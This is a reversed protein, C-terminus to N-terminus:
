HLDGARFAVTVATPGLGGLDQQNLLVRVGQPNGFRVTLDRAAQWQAQSGAELTREYVLRGDAIVRVWCRGVATVSLRVGSSAPQRTFIILDVPKGNGPVQLPGPGRSAPAPGPPVGAPAGAPTLAVSGPTAAATAEDQPSPPQAPQVPSPAGQRGNSTSRDADQAAVADPTHVAHAGPVVSVSSGQPARGGPGVSSKGPTGSLDQWLGFFLVGLLALGAAIAGWMGLRKQRLWSSLKQADRAQPRAERVGERGFDGPEAVAPAGWDPAQGASVAQLRRELSALKETLRFADEGHHQAGQPHVGGAGTRVAGAPMAGSSPRVATGEVGGLPVPSRSRISGEPQPGAGGPVGSGQGPRTQEQYLRITAEPDLGLHGAYLRLFGRVYVEGPIVSFQNEELAQAYRKSMHLDRSVQELSWGKKEREARLLSGVDAGM